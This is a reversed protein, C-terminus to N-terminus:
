PSKKTPRNYLYRWTVFLACLAMGMAVIFLQRYGLHQAITGGIFPVILSVVATVTNSLGVYIPRRDLDSYEVVWNMYCSFINSGAALGSLLFGIYLPAPGVVGALIASIPLVVASSLALLIYLENNRPGLWTYVLAGSLSGITQLALLNPVAVESSLGLEVTAYGIYFPYAMMFLSTFMRVIIFSRFPVDDRLIRGLEPLFDRMAPIEDVAKGGPLEHFFLGPIISLVFIVGSIVFLIGYNEPFGPGVAGLLIGILPAVLIMIISTIATGFGFMRIRWRNNLSTGAMDAWPVGVLGDGFAAVSYCIFFALLILEPQDKGLWMVIMGFILISFRVPLNPGIFWWKKRAYQVIYRAIFLQPFTFGITFLSGSFGILIESDTLHRLFDPIITTSGIIGIAVTFLVNDFLFAVFNHRYVKERSSPSIAVANSETM